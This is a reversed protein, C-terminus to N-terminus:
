SLKLHSCIFQTGLLIEFYAHNRRSLRLREKAEGVQTRGQKETKQETVGGAKSM